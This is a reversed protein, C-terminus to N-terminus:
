MFKGTRSAGFDNAVAGLFQLCGDGACEDAGAFGVLESPVTAFLVDVSNDEVVFERGSLTAVEFFYEVALDQVAGREDQVNEGLPGAGFFAFKLDLEGLELVEEGPESAKPAV